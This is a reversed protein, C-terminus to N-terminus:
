LWKLPISKLTEKIITMTSNLKTDLKKTNTSNIQNYILKELLECCVNLLSIPRCDNIDNKPKGLKLIALIKTQKFFKPLKEQYFIDSFFGSLQKITRPRSYKLFETQVEDFESM